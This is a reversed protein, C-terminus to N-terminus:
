FRALQAFTLSLRAGGGAFATSTYLKQPPTLYDRRRMGPPAEKAGNESNTEEIARRQLGDRARAPRPLAGGGHARRGEGKAVHATQTPKGGQRVERFVLSVVQAVILSVAPAEGRTAVSPCPGRRPPNKTRLLAVEGQHGCVDLQGQM